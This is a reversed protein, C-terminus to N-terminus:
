ARYTTRENSCRLFGRSIQAPLIALHTHNMFANMGPLSKTLEMAPKHVGMSQSIMNQLIYDEVPHEVEPFDLCDYIGFPLVFLFWGGLSSLYLQRPELFQYQSSPALICCDGKIAVLSVLGVISLRKPLCDDMNLMRHHSLEPLSEFTKAKSYFEPQKSMIKALAIHTRWSISCYSAGSLITSIVISKTWRTM